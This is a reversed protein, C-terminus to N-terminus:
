SKTININATDLIAKENIAVPLDNAEDPSPSFGIQLFNVTHGPVTNIPTYLRSHIVDVGLKQNLDFYGTDDAALADKIQDDGDGPYNANVTLDLDIYVDKESPRSFKIDYTQGTVTDALPFTVAGFFGHGAPARSFIAEAIDADSGGEVICWIEGPGVGYSDVNSGKNDHVYM